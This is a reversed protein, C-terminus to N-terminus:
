RCVVTLTPVTDLATFGHEVQLLPENYAKKMQCNRTQSYVKLHPTDSSIGGAAVTYPPPPSPPLEAGLEALSKKLIQLLVSLFLLNSTEAHFHLHLRM